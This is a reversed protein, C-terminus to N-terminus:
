AGDDLFYRSISKFDRLFFSEDHGPYVITNDPFSLIKKISAVMKKENSEPFDTRGISNQFIFDGSFLVSEDPNYLAICGETHGPVLIINFEMEEVVIKYGEKEILIDASISDKVPILDALLNNMPNSLMTEDAKHIILKSNKLEKIAKNGGIHDFHGHTNVIYSVNLNKITDLLEQSPLAPDIVITSTKNKSIIIYTNTLAIGIGIKNNGYDVKLLRAARNM